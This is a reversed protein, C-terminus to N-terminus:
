AAFVIRLGVRCLEQVSQPTLARGAAAQVARRIDDTIKSFMSDVAGEVTRIAGEPLAQRLDLGNIGPERLTTM